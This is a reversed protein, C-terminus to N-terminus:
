EKAAAYCLLFVNEAGAARLATECAVATAGTTCVDDVLLIRKGELSIEARIAGKLNRRREEGTLRAQQPTNRTRKLARIMPLELRAAVEDALLAAHDVSRLRARRVHMPVPTVWDIHAPQLAEFARAMQRGMPEALRAVGRYKLNRVLGSAPEGYRYAYAASDILGGEPPPAAGVWRDALAQRCAECLWDREFGAKSGCGMCEARRPYILALLGDLATKLRESM